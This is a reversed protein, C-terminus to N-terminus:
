YTISYSPTTVREPAFSVEKIQKYPANILEPHYRLKYPKLVFSSTEFRKLYAALYKDPVTYNMCIFQCGMYWPTAYNINRKKRYELGQMPVVRTMNKKNYETLEKADYTEKVEFYSMHRLNGRKTASLNVLEELDSGAVDSDCIIVVKNIFKYLPLMMINTSKVPDNENIGLYTYKPGMFKHSFFKVLVKAIKNMTYINYNLHLNLNIFLPDSGGPVVNSFAISSILECCKSFQLETTFHWNGLERGSCVVPETCENFNENFIDLDIYRAGHLLALKIADVDAYDYYYTCPLYSKFSSAVNFDCLRYSKRRSIVEGRTNIPQINTIKEFSKMRGLSRDVRRHLYVAYFTFLYLCIGVILIRRSNKYVLETADTVSNVGFKEGIKEM